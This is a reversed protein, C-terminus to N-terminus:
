ANDSKLLIAAQKDWATGGLRALGYFRVKPAATYPDRLVSTNRHIGVAYASAIDAFAVPYTTAGIDPASDTELVRKGLITWEGAANQTALPMQTNPYAYQTAVSLTASNMLWVASQRYKVPLAFYAVHFATNALAGAAGSLKTTYTATAGFLGQIKSGSGNVADMEAQELMDEYIWRLLLDEADAVSDLYTQTARQDTYYDYCTLSPSEFTPANQESRAGEETANAVAGHTAKYPLQLTTDGGAMDFVTANGFVPNQKRVKEILEAHKPEPVIYGGNADTTSMSANRIEGSRLFAMFDLVAPDEGTQTLQTGRDIIARLEALEADKMEGAVQEVASLEGHLAMIKDRDEDAPDQKTTLTEIEAQIHKARDELARYDFSM